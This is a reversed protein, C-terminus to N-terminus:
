RQGEYKELGTRAQEFLERGLFEPRILDLQAKGVRLVGESTYVDTDLARSVHEHLVTIGLKMATLVTARARHDAETRDDRALHQETM